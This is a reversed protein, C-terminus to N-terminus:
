HGSEFYATLLRQWEAIFAEYAAEDFASVFTEGSASLATYDYTVEVRSRSPALESCKVTVVGVKDGPEIKYFQVFHTLPDCRKVIWIAETAAHDHARTLFIYGERLEAGETVKEYDWGPVWLKEGEPSFLPFLDAAPVAM